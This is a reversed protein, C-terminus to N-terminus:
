TNTRVDAASDAANLHGCRSTQVTWIAVALLNLILVFDLCFM